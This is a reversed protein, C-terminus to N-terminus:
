EDKGRIRREALVEGVLKRIRHRDRLEKDIAERLEVLVLTPTQGLEHPFMSGGMYDPPDVPFSITLPRPTGPPIRPDM